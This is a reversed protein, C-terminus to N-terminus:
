TAATYKYLLWPKITSTGKSFCLLAVDDGELPCWTARAIKLGGETLPSKRLGFKIKFYFIM